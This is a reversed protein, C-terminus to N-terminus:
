VNVEFFRLFEFQLKGLFCRFGAFNTEDEYNSSLVNIKKIYAYSLVSTVCKVVWTVLPYLAYLTPTCPKKKLKFVIEKM